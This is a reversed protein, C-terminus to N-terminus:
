EENPYEVLTTHLTCIVNIIRNEGSEQQEMNPGFINRLVRNKCMRLRHEKKLIVSRTECGYM